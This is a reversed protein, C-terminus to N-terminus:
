SALIVSCLLLDTMVSMIQHSLSEFLVTITSSVMQKSVRKLCAASLFLFLIEVQTLVAIMICQEDGKLNARSSHDMQLTEELHLLM